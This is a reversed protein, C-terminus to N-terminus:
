RPGVQRYLRSRCETKTYTERIKLHTEHPELHTEHPEILAQM